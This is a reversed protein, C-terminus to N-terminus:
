ILGAHWVKDIAKSIDLFMGEVEFGHDLSKYIDHTISLLQNICSDGPQFGSLKEAIQDNKILYEFIRYYIIREFIKAFIPLLSILRYNKM